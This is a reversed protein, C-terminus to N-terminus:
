DWLSAFGSVSFRDPLQASDFSGGSTEIQEVVPKHQRLIEQGDNQDHYDQKKRRNDAFGVPFILAILNFKQSSFGQSSLNFYYLM